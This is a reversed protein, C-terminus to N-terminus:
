SMQPGEFMAENHVATDISNPFKICIDFMKVYYGWLLHIEFNGFGCM